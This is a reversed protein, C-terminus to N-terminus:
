QGSSYTVANRPDLTDPEGAVNWTIKDVDGKAAPLSSVLRTADVTTSKPSDAGSCATLACGAMLAATAAALLPRATRSAPNMVEGTALRGSRPRTIRTM